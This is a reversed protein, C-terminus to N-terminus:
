ARAKKILEVVQQTNLVKGYSLVKGDVVLAPTTMVGFTAIQAFDTVHDIATDMELIELANKTAAELDNCKSCGSGLIKVSAGSDNNKQAKEISQADINGCCSNNEKKKEACAGGCDCKEEKKKGFGFLGMSFSWEAAKLRSYKTLEILSVRIVCIRYDIPENM